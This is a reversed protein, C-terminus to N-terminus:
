GRYRYYKKLPLGSQYLSDDSSDYIWSSVNGTVSHFDYRGPETKVWNGLDTEEQRNLYFGRTYYTQNEFLVIHLDSAPPEGGIWQGVLPDPTNELIHIGPLQICGALLICSVILLSGRMGTDM